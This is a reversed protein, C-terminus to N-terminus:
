HGLPRAEERAYEYASERDVMEFCDHAAKAIFDKTPWEQGCVKCVFATGWKTSVVRGSHNLSCQHIISAGAYVFKNALDVTM